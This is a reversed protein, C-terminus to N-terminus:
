DNISIQYDYLADYLKSPIKDKYKDAIQKINKEKYHKYVEFAKEQTRYIGLYERKSKGTKLNILSCQAVYKGQHPITGIVSEGRTKNNKVFLNNIIEPVYICTEPSYIKNGKILIDKDLCMKEDDIQYYNESDWEGFAQFNYFEESASCNIYTPYEEHHKDSYCRTLMHYWTSFVRTLKGNESVKYKGEGIYGVGYHRREYPCKIKGKKFNNYRANKFTWDYRPFYVDIDHVNRYDVIIMESGFNNIGTEGVRNM